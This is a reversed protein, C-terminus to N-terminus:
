LQILCTAAVKSTARPKCDAKLPECIELRRSQRLDNVPTTMVFVIPVVGSLRYHTAAM